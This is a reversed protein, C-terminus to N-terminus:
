RFRSNAANQWLDPNPGLADLLAQTADTLRRLAEDPLPQELSAANRRVQEGSAAGAIVCAVGPQQLCWALAVDAMTRGLERCIGRVADLAAFTERECGPEGHRTLPRHSGFHRTRARGPPVEDATRYKDALLGHMLPSYALVGINQEGCYPLIESEVMRWLLSYPVQNTVPSSGPSDATAFTGTGIEECGRPSAIAQLDGLGANCVGPYRIKGQEQLRLLAEWTDSLPVERNTWHTQLLDLYDTGLAQLSEECAQPVEAPHMRNAALKSAIVVQDRCGALATGLLQESAGMGYMAATDFFNIGTDLAAQIADLAADRDRDGWHQDSIIGWCGFCLRSVSLDTRPLQVYKM